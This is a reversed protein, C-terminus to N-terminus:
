DYGAEQKAKNQTDWDARRHESLARGSQDDRARVWCGRGLWGNRGKASHQTCSPRRLVM